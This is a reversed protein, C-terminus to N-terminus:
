GKNVIYRQGCYMCRFMGTNLADQKRPSPFPPKEVSEFLMRRHCSTCRLVAAVTLAYLSLVLTASLWAIGVITLIRSPLGYPSNGLFLAGLFIYFLWRFLPRSRRELRFWTPMPMPIPEDSERSAPAVFGRNIQRSVRVTLYSGVFTILAATLYTHVNHQMLGCTKRTPSRITRAAGVIPRHPPERGSTNPRRPPKNGEIGQM